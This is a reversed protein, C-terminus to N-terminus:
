RKILKKKKFNSSYYNIHCLPKCLDSSFMRLDQCIPERSLKSKVCAHFHLFSLNTNKLSISIIIHIMQSAHFDNVQQMMDGLDVVLSGPITTVDIWQNQYLVQLGGMQDQLLVTLFSSDTHKSIGLTLDPEPRRPMSFLLSGFCLTGWCLGHRQPAQTRAWSSRVAVWIYYNLCLRM